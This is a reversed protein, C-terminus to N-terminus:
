ARQPQGGAPRRRTLMRRLEPQLRLELLWAIGFSLATLLAFRLAYSWPTGRPLDPQGLIGFQLALSLAYLGFSVAGVPALRVLFTPAPKWKVLLWALAIAAAYAAFSGEGLDGFDGTAFRMALGASAVLLCAVALRAHWRRARGTLVLLLWLCVPLIDMRRLSLAPISLDNLHWASSFAWFPALPWMVVAVLLASPWNGTGADKPALWAVSLGAFWYLAGAAYCSVFQPFGPVVVAGLVAVALSCLLWGARPALRWIAVFVLYYFMEFNLTWLSPNNAMGPMRWGFLYPNSNELFALNGLVTGASIRPALAWSILVAATNVPVLRLLRRELYGGVAPASWPSEVTLGIVYGSLVFFILVAVSGADLWWLQEPPSYVPDLCPIPSTAHGYFVLLACLGRLGELAM